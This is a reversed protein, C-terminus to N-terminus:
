ATAPSMQAMAANLRAFQMIREYAGIMSEPVFKVMLRNEM